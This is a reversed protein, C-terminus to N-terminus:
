DVQNPFGKKKLVPPIFLKIEILYWLQVPGQTSLIVSKNRNESWPMAPGFWGSAFSMSEHILFVRRAHLDWKDFLDTLWFVMRAYM